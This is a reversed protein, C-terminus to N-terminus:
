RGFTAGKCMELAEERSAEGRLNASYFRLKVGGVNRVVLLGLTPPTKANSFKKVVGKFYFGDPLEGKEGVEEWAPVDVMLFDKKKLGTAYVEPAQADEPCEEVRVVEAESRTTPAPKTVRWAPLFKNYDVQWGAPATLRLDALKRPAPTITVLAAVPNSVVTEPKGADAAVCVEAFVVLLGAFSPDDAGVPPFSFELKGTKALAGPALPQRRVRAAAGAGYTLRLVLAGTVERNREYAAFGALKQGDGATLATLVIPVPPEAARRSPPEPLTALLLDNDGLRLAQAQEPSLEFAFLEGGWWALLAPKKAKVAAAGVALTFGEGDKLRAGLLATAKEGLQGPAAGHEAVWALV